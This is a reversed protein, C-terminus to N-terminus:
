KLKSMDRKSGGNQKMFQEKIDAQSYNSGKSEDMYQDANDDEVSYLTQKDVDVGITFKLKVAKNAYRSKLQKVMLKNVQDLEETRILAWMGDATQAIGTSEAIDEMGVESSNMGGRNFQAATWLVTNTAVALARLEEAVAKYYYYSGQSGYAMRSSAMIQLYDCIIIDLVFNKKLKLDDMTHKISLNTATGPAFEKVVFRGYSKQKLSEVRSLFKEKGLKVLDNVNTGLLNADLRQSIMEERMEGSIYLVNYGDRVYDAALSILGMTKGVNVGAVLLNMTKRIVGGCTIENFSELRFPVRSEPNSYFDFREAATDFYEMGIKIDFSVALAKALIDPIAAVTQKLDEGQYIAIAKQIALYVETKQVFQETTESLYEVNKSPIISFVDLITEHLADAQGESLSQDNKAAVILTSKDPLENYRQAHEFIMKLMRGEAADEFYEPKLFPLMKRLYEENKVLAALILRENSIDSM